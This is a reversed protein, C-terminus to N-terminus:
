NEQDLKAFARVPFSGAGKVKVPTAFFRFESQAVAALNCLHEVILIGAGLLITHVPREDTSNDDVNLSDIGVLVAGSQKLYEAAEVSLYPYDEFYQESNWYQSWNTQVIVAKGTLDLNEFHHKEIKRNAKTADIKVAALDAVRDIDIMAIDEGQEYRHFPADIYTGSNMVMDIKGIQFTTGEAYHQQSAQRSMYDCIVPAPLGKYTITQNDLPHSLDILQSM